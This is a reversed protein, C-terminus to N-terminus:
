DNFFTWMHQNFNFDQNTFGFTTKALITEVGPWTHGGDIIKYFRVPAQQCQQYDYQSAQSQDGENTNPLAYTTTSNSCDNLKAFTSATIDGHMSFNDFGEYPAIPDLTGHSYLVPIDLSPCDNLVYEIGGFGVVALGAFTGKLECALRQAFAGGNSFGALFVKNPAVHYTHQMHAIMSSIFTLDQFQKDHDIRYVDWHPMVRDDFFPVASAMSKPYAVIFSANDALTDLETYDKIEQANSDQGHLMVLMANPQQKNFQSPLHVLYERHYNGIRITSRFDQAYDKESDTLRLVFQGEFQIVNNFTETWTGATATDFTYTTQYQTNEVISGNMVRLSTTEILTNGTTQLQYHGQMDFLNEVGFILVEGAEHFVKRSKGQTPFQGAPVVDSQGSTLTIDFTYGALSSPALATDAITESTDNMAANNSSPRENDCAALSLAALASFIVVGFSWKGTGSKNRIGSM